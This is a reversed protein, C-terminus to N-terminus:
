RCRRMYVAVEVHRTNPFHDLVVLQEIVHSSFGDRINKLLNEPGCSVYLIHDVRSVLALTDPDLGARPPDVLVVSFDDLRIGNGAADEFKGALMRKSFNKSNALVVEVNSVGNMDLNERAAEVLNPNIEIAVVRKFMPALACTHNANGCYLELLSSGMDVDGISMACERLFEMTAITIFRNPNSFAGETHRYRLRTGDSLAYEEVLWDNATKMVVGKSRGMLEVNALAGDSALVRKAEVLWADGIPTSYVLTVLVKGSAASALFHAAELGRELASRECARLVAGMVNRIARVACPFDDGELRADPRGGIWTAYALAGDDDRVVQFRCRSWHETSPSRAVRWVAANAVDAFSERIWATKREFSTARADDDDDNSCADRARM